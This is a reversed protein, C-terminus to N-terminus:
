EHAPLPEMTKPDVPVQIEDRYTSTMMFVRMRPFANMFALYCVGWLGLFGLTVGVEYFGFPLSLAQLEATAAAPDTAQGAIRTAFVSPYIEVYRQLWLGLISSLAFVTMTPTYTKATKSLLGFFPIVFMMVGVAVTVAAWPKSLRLFFFHTEEPMNGYWIVLLQSFTLYGWFATFGFCLKGIDHFHRETILEEAGLANRWLRVFISQIMFAVVWGGMFVQWGYMTSQFHYDVSMSLDWALMTWGFGFVLAIVVALKGLMSHTSHLERREDGFGARMRDRLGKAWSSGWEPIVGVDLRVNRYVFWLSLVTILGYVGIVRLTFFTPNLWVAKEHITPPETVWPFIASKGLLVTVLLLVFAIPLWAVFGELFRVVPRSWRATTIRQAAAIGIGGASFTTFFLWNVHYALWARQNGTFVGILFIAFGVVALLLSISALRKPIPRQIIAVVEERTAVHGEHHSM